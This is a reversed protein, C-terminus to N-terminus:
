RIFIRQPVYMPDPDSFVKYPGGCIAYLYPSIKPTQEFEVIAVQDLNQYFDLFYEIGHRELVRLGEKQASEYRKDIGNSVASWDSPCTVTLSM